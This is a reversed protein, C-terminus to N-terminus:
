GIAGFLRLGALALIAASGYLMLKRKPRQVAILYELIYIVLVIRVFLYITDRDIQLVALVMFLCLVLLDQNNLSFLERRSIRFCLMMLGVTFLLTGDMLLRHPSDAALPAALMFLMVASLSTVSRLLWDSRQIPSRTLLLVLSGAILYPSAALVGTTAPGFVLAAVAFSFLVTAALVTTICNYYRSIAHFFPNRRDASPKKNARFKWGSFRAWLLSGIFAVCFLTYFLLISIDPQYRMIYASAVLTTQLLYIIAVSEHHHFGLTMIQYHLHKRDAAFPSRGLRIRALIVYATDLVPLGVILLPLLPSYAVDSGQTALVALCALLFGIFQSGTDGMFLVAPHTNYRLFGVVAGLLACALITVSYNGTFYSLVAVVCLSLFTSGGALGDLGDSLNVANTVGLLFFFTIFIAIPRAVPELGCFPMQDIVVGSEIALIVAIIQGSFKWKYNLNRADDAMGFLAVIFAAILLQMDAMHGGLALAVALLTSIVIGVGGVRSISKSHQKRGGDPADTFREAVSNEMLIKISVSSALLAVFFSFAFGM